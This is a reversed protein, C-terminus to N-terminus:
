TGPPALRTAPSGVWTEGPPVSKTVVSGMGIVAGAGITLGERICAGSGLYAGQRIRVAGAVRVGAGFTVFDDVVDDHTLVVSPMIEVHRGIRVDTTCVTAAHIVSGVGVSVSTPVIAGPHVLTAYRELPLDLREVVRQRARPSRPSGLCAAVCVESHERAWELPGLVPVGSRIQGHISEDDDLFGALDWVVSVGNIANVIEVTERAFGGAGLLVLPAPAGRARRWPVIGM